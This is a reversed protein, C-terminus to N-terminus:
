HVLDADDEGTENKKKKPKIPTTPNNDITQELYKTLKNFHAAFINFTLQQRGQLEVGDLKKMMWLKFNQKDSLINSKRLKSIYQKAKNIKKESWFTFGSKLQKDSLQKNILPDKVFNIFPQKM